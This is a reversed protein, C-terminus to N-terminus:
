RNKVLKFLNQRPDVRSQAALKRYLEKEEPTPSEPIVVKVKVLLNGPSGGGPSPLGLGRLRFVKGSQTAPPIKLTVPGKLSPIEVSAGLVAEHPFLPVECELDGGDLVKFLPHEKLKVVLYIDGGAPGSGRRLRVKYGDRVGPPIKVKLRRGDALIEKEVGAYAEELTLELPAEVGSVPWARASAGRETEFGTGSSWRKGWFFGADTFPDLDGFFMKFFDSFGGYHPSEFSVRFGGPGAEQWRGFGGAFRSFDYNEWNSGLEDYRKRKEPDSLVEYAESIEKFKEEAERNGPNADPHYRRALERYAKKITKIDADKDVGLIKYYDKFQM